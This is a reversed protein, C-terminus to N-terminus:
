AQKNFVQIRLSVRAATQNKAHSTIPHAPIHSVEYYCYRPRFGAMLFSYKRNMMVEDIADAAEADECCMEEAVRRSIYFHEVRHKTGQERAQESTCCRLRSRTMTYVAGARM